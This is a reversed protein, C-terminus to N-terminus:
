RPGSVPKTADPSPNALTTVLARRRGGTLPATQPPTAPHPDPHHALSASM